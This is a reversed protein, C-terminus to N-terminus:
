IATAVKSSDDIAEPARQGNSISSYLVHQSCYDKTKSAPKTELDFKLLNIYMSFLPKTNEFMLM